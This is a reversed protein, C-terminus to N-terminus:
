RQLLLLGFADLTGVDMAFWCSFPRSKGSSSSSIEQEWVMKDRVSLMGSCPPWLHVASQIRDSRLGCTVGRQYQKGHADAM